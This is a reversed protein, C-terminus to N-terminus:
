VDTWMNKKMMQFTLEMLALTKINKNEATDPVGLLIGLMYFPSLLSRIFSVGLNWKNCCAM